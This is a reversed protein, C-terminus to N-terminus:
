EPVMKEPVPFPRVLYVSLADTEHKRDRRDFHPGPLLVQLSERLLKAERKRVKQVLASIPLFRLHRRHLVRALAQRRPPNKDRDGPVGGPGTKDQRIGGIPVRKPNPRRPEELSKNNPLVPDVPGQDRGPQPGPLGGDPDKLGLAIKALNLPRLPGLTPLSKYQQGRPRLLNFDPGPIEDHRLLQERLRLARALGQELQCIKNGRRPPNAKKPGPRPYPNAYSSIM